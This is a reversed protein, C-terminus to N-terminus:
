AYTMVERMIAKVLLRADEESATVIACRKGNIDELIIIHRRIAFIPIFFLFALVQGAMLALLTDIDSTLPRNFVQHYYSAIIADLTLFTISLIYGVYKALKEYSSSTLMFYTTLAVGVCIPISLLTLYRIPPLSAKIIIYLLPYTMMFSYPVLQIKFYKFLRGRELNTLDTVQTVETFVLKFIVKPFGYSLIVKGKLVEVERGVSILALVIGILTTFFPIYNPVDNYVSLLLSSTFILLATSLLVSPLGTYPTPWWKWQCCKVVM